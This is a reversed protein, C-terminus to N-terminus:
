RFIWHDEDLKLRLAWDYLIDWHDLILEQPIELSTMDEVIGREELYNELINQLYALLGRRKLEDTIMDWSAIFANRIDLNILAIWVEEISKWKWEKKLLDKTSM